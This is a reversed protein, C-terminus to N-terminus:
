IHFMSYIILYHYIYIYTAHYKSQTVFLFRNISLRLILVPHLSNVVESKKCALQVTILLTINFNRSNNVCFHVMTVTTFFQTQFKTNALEKYTHVFLLTFIANLHLLVIECSLLGPLLFM